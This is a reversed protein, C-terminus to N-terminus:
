KLTCKKLHNSRVIRRSINTMAASAPNKEAFASEGENSNWSTNLLNTYILIVQGYENYLETKYPPMTNQCLMIVSLNIFSSPVKGKMIKFWCAKFQNRCLIAWIFRSLFKEQYIEVKQTIRQSSHLVVEIYILFRDYTNKSNESRM